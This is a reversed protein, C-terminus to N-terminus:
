RYQVDDRLGDIEILLVAGADMPYGAHYAPEVAQITLNDMM